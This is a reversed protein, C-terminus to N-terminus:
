IVLFDHSDLALGKPLHALVVSGGPQSGNADYALAGTGATYVLHDSPTAARLGRFLESAPLAGPPLATFIQHALDIHDIGHQFDPLTAIGTGLAIRFVFSDAGRGGYLVDNGSGVYILDNGPGAYVTDNGPGSMLTDNGAGASLLNDANNGVLMDNGSGSFANEITVGNAITFGGFVGHVYSIFGGGGPEVQLTAARLDITAARLGAYAIADNGGADWICSFFTGPGNSGPLTYVDDGTHYSLNAGYKEQLVAIDIAMPTGQFGYPGAAPPLGDPDLKWGDNYAMTTYVGQDLGYSGTDSSSGVGPFVTSGGGNDFPHALGMGHGLEHIITVFGYGGQALTGAGGDRDWGLGGVNFVGTGAYTTSSGPPQMAGLLADAPRDYMILLFDPSATPAVEQFSVNLFTSYLSLAAQVQQEEYATAAVSTISEDTPNSGASYPNGGPDFAYTIVSPGAATTGPVRNGPGGWDIGTELPTEVKTGVAM